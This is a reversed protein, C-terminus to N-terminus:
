EFDDANKGDFVDLYCYQADTEYELWETFNDDSSGVFVSNENEM